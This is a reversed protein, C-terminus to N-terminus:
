DYIGSMIISAAVSANLSECNPTMKINVFYDCLEKLEISLGAGENGILVACKKGKLYQVNKGMRVDTGAIIYEKKKLLEIISFLDDKIINVKFIMGESSRIVKDNYHDVTDKSMIITNFNFAVASRIMTGLNGPDQIHDLVLVNGFIDDPIIYNCVAIINPPSVMDSLRSMINENVTYTPVDYQRDELTIIEKVIGKNLAEEVLHTGEVLFLHEIDRYKKMKLKAWNVVKENNISSLKM